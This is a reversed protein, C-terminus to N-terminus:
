AQAPRLPWFFEHSYISEDVLLGTRNLVDFQTRYARMAALKARRPGAALCVRRAQALPVIEPLQRTVRRWWTAENTGGPVLFRPWSGSTVCYPVDAYLLVPRDLRRGLRRAAERVIRHDPHPRHGGALPAYIASARSVADGAELAGEVASVVASPGARERYAHELLGLGVIEDVYNGIAARDEEVRQRMWASSDTAGCLRDWDSLTGAPPIGTFVNIVVPRLDFVSFCGLAADDLHPSLVVPSSRRNTM